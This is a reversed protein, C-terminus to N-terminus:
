KLARFRSEPHIKARRDLYNGFRTKVEAPNAQIDLSETTQWLNKFFKNVQGKGGYNSLSMTKSIKGFVDRPDSTVSLEFEEKKNPDEIHAHLHDNCLGHFHMLTLELKEKDTDSM